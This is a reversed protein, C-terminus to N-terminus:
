TNYNYKCFYIYKKYITNVSRFVEGIFSKSLFMMSRPAPAEGGECCYSELARGTIHERQLLCCFDMENALNFCCVRTKSHASKLTFHLPYPHHFPSPINHPTTTFPYSLPPPTPPPMNPFPSLPLSLHPRLEESPSPPTLHESNLPWVRTAHRTRLEGAM